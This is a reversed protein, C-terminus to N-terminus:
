DFCCNAEVFSESKRHSFGHMAEGKDRPFKAPMAWIISNQGALHLAIFKWVVATMWLLIIHLAANGSHSLGNVASHQATAAVAAVAHNRKKRKWKHEGGWISEPITNISQLLLMQWVKFTGKWHKRENEPAETDQILSGSTNGDKKKDWQLGFPWILRLYARVGSCWPQELKTEMRLEPSRRITRTEHFAM